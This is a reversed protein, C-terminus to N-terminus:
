QEFCSKKKGDTRHIFIVVSFFPIRKGGFYYHWEAFAILWFLFLIVTMCLLTEARVMEELRSNTRRVVATTQFDGMKELSCVPLLKDTRVIDTEVGTATQQQHSLYPRFSVTDANKITGLIGIIFVIAIFACFLHRGHNRQMEQKVVEGIKKPINYCIIKIDVTGKKIKIM